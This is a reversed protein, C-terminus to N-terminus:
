FKMRDVSFRGFVYQSKQEQSLQKSTCTSLHTLHSFKLIKTHFSDNKIVNNNQKLCKSLINYIRVKRKNFNNKSIQCM